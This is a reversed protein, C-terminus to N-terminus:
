TILKLILIQTFIQHTVVYKSAACKSSEYTHLDQLRIPNALVLRFNSGFMLSCEQEASSQSQPHRTVDTPCVMLEAEASRFCRLGETQALRTSTTYALCRIPPGCVPLTGEVQQLM